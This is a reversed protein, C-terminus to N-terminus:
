SHTINKEICWEMLFKVSNDDSCNDVIVIEHNGNCNCLSELCEITDKYGNYNILVIGIKFKKMLAVCGAFSGYM